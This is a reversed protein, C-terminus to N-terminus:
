VNVVILTTNDRGGSDNAADVLARCADQPNLNDNM